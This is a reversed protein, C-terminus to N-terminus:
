GVTLAERSYVLHEPTSSRSGKLFDKCLQQWSKQDARAKQLSEKALMIEEKTMMPALRGDLLDVVVDDYFEPHGQIALVHEGVSFMEVGTRESSALLEAGPPIESVQDRHVELVKLKPPMGAGYSKSFFADTLCVDRLGVEWGVSARGTKGGLARSVVQHGFCVCLSKKKMEHIRQLVGCLREIWEEDAHADHRSGTVVFGDYKQLEELSPFQGDVVFYEDWIEGPDSLMTIFMPGYGGYKNVCYEAAHGTTLVAFRRPKAVTEAGVAQTPGVDGNAVVSSGMAMSHDLAIRVVSQRSIIWGGRSFRLSDFRSGLRSSFGLSAGSGSAGLNSSFLRSTPAPAKCALSKPAAPAIRGSLLGSPSSKACTHLLRRCAM